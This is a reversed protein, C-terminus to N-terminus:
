NSAGDEVESRLWNLMELSLDDKYREYLQPWTWHKDILKKRLRRAMLSPQDEGFVFYSIAGVDAGFTRLRPRQAQVAREDDETLVTVQQQFVERVFYASHTAIIAISGTIELMKDLLSTFRAIFNPHLHTEPEDLLLLSGNEIHLSAQAAFKLFSIEGSSLPYGKGDIVRVPEKKVDIAAFRELM